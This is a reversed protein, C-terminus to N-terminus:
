LFWNFMDKLFIHSFFHPSSCRNYLNLHLFNVSARLIFEDRICQKQSPLLFPVSAHLLSKAKFYGRNYLFFPPHPCTSPLLNHPNTAFVDPSRDEEAAM